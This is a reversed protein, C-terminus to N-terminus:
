ETGLHDLGFPKFDSNDTLAEIDDHPCLIFKGATMNAYYDPISKEFNALGFKKQVKSQLTKDAMLANM